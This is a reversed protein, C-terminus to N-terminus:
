MPMLRLVTDVSRARQNIILWQRNAQAHAIVADWTKPHTEFFCPLLNLKVAEAFLKPELILRDVSSGTNKLLPSQLQGVSVVHILQVLYHRSNNFLNFLLQHHETPTPASLIISQIFPTQMKTNLLACEAKEREATHQKHQEEEKVILQEYSKQLRDNGWKEDTALTELHQLEKKWNTRRNNENQLVQQCALERWSQHIELSHARQKELFLPLWSLFKDSTVTNVPRGGKSETAFAGSLADSLSMKGSVHIANQDSLGGVTLLRKLLSMLQETKTSSTDDYLVLVYEKPEIDKSM